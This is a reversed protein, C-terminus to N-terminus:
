RNWALGRRRSRGPEDRFADGDREVGRLWHPKGTMRSLGLGPLALSQLIIGTRNFSRSDSTTPTEKKIIEESPDEEVPDAEQMVIVPEPAPIAKTHIKVYIKANMFINDAKLDWTIHKNSGGSVKDGIDGTLSNANIRNENVDTVHISVIFKDSPDSNLIDYTIHIINDKLEMRPDSVQITQAHCIPDSVSFCIILLSLLTKGMILDRNLQPRLDSSAQIAFRLLFM